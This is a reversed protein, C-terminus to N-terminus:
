CTPPCVSSGWCSPSWRGTSPGQQQCHVQATPVAEAQSVQGRGRAPAATLCNATPTVRPLKLDLNFIVELDWEDDRCSHLSSDTCWSIQTRTGSNVLQM